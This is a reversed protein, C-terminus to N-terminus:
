GADAEPETKVRKRPKSPKQRLETIAKAQSENLRTLREVDARLGINEATLRTVRQRHTM